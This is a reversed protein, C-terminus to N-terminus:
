SLEYVPFTARDPRLLDAWLCAAGAWGEFLSRPHDPVRAGSRFEASCACRM